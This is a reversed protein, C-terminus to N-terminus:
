PCNNLGSATLVGATGLVLGRPKNIRKIDTAQVATVGANRALRLLVQDVTAGM